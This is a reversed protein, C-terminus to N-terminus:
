HCKPYPLESAMQGCTKYSIGDFWTLHNVIAKLMGIHKNTGCVSPHFLLTFCADKKRSDAFNFAKLFASKWVQLVYQPRRKFCASDYDESNMPIETIGNVQYPAFREVKQSSDWKLGMKQITDFLDRNWKLGPSRFGVPNFEPIVQRIMQIANTLRKMQIEPPEEDFNKVKRIKEGNTKNHDIKAGPHYDSHLALEFNNEVLLKVADPYRICSHADLFFTAPLNHEVLYDVVRKTKAVFDAQYVNYTGGWEEFDFTLMVNVTM